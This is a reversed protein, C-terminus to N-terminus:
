KSLGKWAQFLKEYQATKPGVVGLQNMFTLDDRISKHEVVKGDEGIRYIHVAQYSINNGTPPIVFFNGTHKGTVTVIQAVKDDSAIIEQEEYHLNDFANRLNRVTDIFEDPGTLKSRVLDIQSEHNFYQPSIFEHVRSVDGTNVAQRLQRITQINKKEKEEKEKTETGTSALIKDVKSSTTNSNSTLSADVGIVNQQTIAIMFIAIATALLVPISNPKIM